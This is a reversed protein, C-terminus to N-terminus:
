AAWAPAQGARYATLEYIGGSFQNSTGNCAIDITSGSVTGQAAGSGLDTVGGGNVRAKGTTPLSGGGAPVFVDLLDGRAWTPLVTGLTRTVGGIVVSIARTSFNIEAYNSSDITWLRMNASYESSSGLPRISFALSLRGSDILSAPTAHYLREGSRAATSGTTSIASTPFAGAEIQAFDLHVVNAVAACAASWGTGAAQCMYPNASAGADHTKSRREWAATTTSSDIEGAGTAPGFTWQHTGDSIRTKRWLSATYKGSSATIQLYRAYGSSTGGLGDASSAGDPGTTEDSVYGTSVAAGTWTFGNNFERARTVLNTRTEEILLLSGAGANYVRPVDVGIGSELTSASKQVTAGSARTLVLGGSGLALLAGASISGATLAAIQAATVQWLIPSLASSASCRDISLGLGLRM